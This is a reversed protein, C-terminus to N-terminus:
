YPLGPIALEVARVTNTAAIFWTRRDPGGFTMIRGSGGSSTGGQSAAVVSLSSLGLVFCRM